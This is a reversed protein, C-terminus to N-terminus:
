QATTNLMEARFEGETKVLRSHLHKAATQTNVQHENVRHVRDFSNKAGGALKLIAEERDRQRQDSYQVEGELKGHTRQQQMMAKQIEAVAARGSDVDGKQQARVQQM